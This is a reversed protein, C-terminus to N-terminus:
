GEFAYGFRQYASYELRATEQKLGQDWLPKSLARSSQNEPPVGKLFDLRVDVGIMALFTQMDEVLNEQKGIHVRDSGVYSNYLNSVFGPYKRNVNRVFTNFDPSGLGNLVANPHWQYIDQTSGWNQWGRQQMFCWWSEYWSLPERVFCFMFTSNPDPCRDRGRLRRKIINKVVYFDKELHGHWQIRFLDAHRHGLHRKILSLRHLVQTVWTGGTKPVHLFLANNKLLVAM